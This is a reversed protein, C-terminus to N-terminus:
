GQRAEYTKVMRDVAQPDFGESWTDGIRIVPTSRFGAAQVEALADPDTALDRYTFAYGRLELHRRLAVCPMCGPNSFLTITPTTM